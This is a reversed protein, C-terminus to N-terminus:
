ATPRRGSTPSAASRNAAWASSVGALIGVVGLGVNVWYYASVPVALMVFIVIFAGVIASAGAPILVRSARATAAAWADFAGLLALVAGAALMTWGITASMDYTFFPLAVVIGGAVINVWSALEIGAHM